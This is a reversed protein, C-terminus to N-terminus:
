EWRIVYEHYPAGRYLCKTEEITVTKRGLALRAFQLFYGKHYACMVPHFKYGIIRVIVYKEEESFEATELRGFDFHKEWYGPIEEFCRKLSVFYKTLVKTFFSLKLAAKGMQFIGEEDLNLLERILLIILVSIAEPYLMMPEINKVLFPCGLEKLRKEIKQIIKEGAKQRVYQIDALIVAGRVNGQIKM